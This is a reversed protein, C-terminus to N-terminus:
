DLLPVITWGSNASLRSQAELWLPDQSVDANQQAHVRARSPGVPQDTPPTPQQQQQSASVGPPVTSPNPSITRSPEAKRGMVLALCDACVLTTEADMDPLRSASPVRSSSGQKASSSPEGSSSVAGAPHGGVLVFKAANKCCVDCSGMSYVHEAAKDRVWVPVPRSSAASRTLYTTVPLCYGTECSASPAQRPPQGVGPDAATRLRVEDVVWFHECVNQHLLWYPKHLQIRSLDALRTSALSEAFTCVGANDLAGSCRAENLSNLLMKTASHGGSESYLADGVLMFTNSPRKKGTFRPKQFADASDVGGLSSTPGVETEPVDDMRCILSYRLDALTHSASMIVKQSPQESGEDPGFRPEFLDPGLAFRSRPDDDDDDDSQDSSPGPSKVVGTNAVKSSRSSHRNAKHLPRSYISISVILDRPQLIKDQERAASLDMHLDLDQDRRRRKSTPSPQHDECRRTMRRGKRHIPSSEDAATEGDVHPRRPPTRTRLVSLSTEQQPGDHCESSSAITPKPTVLLHSPTPRLIASQDALRGPAWYLPMRETRDLFRFSQPVQNLAAWKGELLAEDMEMPFDEQAPVPLGSAWAAQRWRLRQVMQGDAAYTDRQLQRMKALLGDNRSQVDNAVDIHSASPPPYGTFLQQPSSLRIPDSPTFTLAAEHQDVSQSVDAPM